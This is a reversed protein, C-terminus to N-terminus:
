ELVESITKAVLELDEKKINGIHGIRLLMDAMNGGNPTLMLEYDNKLTEFVSKACNDFMLTTLANSMPVNLIELGYKKCCDRFFEAKEKTQGIVRSAGGQEMIKELRSALQLVTGVAPTFPTQGHGMNDFYDNLNFYMSKVTGSSIKERMRPSVAIVSLGPALALAKQSSVIVLDAGNSSMDFPDALFSSIADVIYTMGNERCFKGLLEADYLQGTTTEDINVLLATYGKGAYYYLKGATLPEDYELNLATHKIGYINCLDVFRQGFGGGNIVLVNDRENLGNLVAAEMAGTGSATLMATKAGEPANMLDLINKEIGYNIESFERTRFYPLQKGGIELTDAYMEVPGVTFIKM